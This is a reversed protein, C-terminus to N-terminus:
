SWAINRSHMVRSSQILIRLALTRLALAHLGGMLGQSHIRKEARAAIGIGLKNSKMSCYSPELVPATM